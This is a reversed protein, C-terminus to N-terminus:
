QFLNTFYTLIIYDFYLIMTNYQSNFILNTLLNCYSIKILINANMGNPISNNNNSIINGLLTPPINHVICM